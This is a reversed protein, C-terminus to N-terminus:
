QLADWLEAMAADLGVQARKHAEWAPGYWCALEWVWPGLGLRLRHVTDWRGDALQLSLGLLWGGRLFPDVRFFTWRRSPLPHNV